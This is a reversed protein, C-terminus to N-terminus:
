QQKLQKRKNFFTQYALYAAIFTGIATTGVLMFTVMIQYKVAILPSTGALILGSMMGPLSVIGLTKASDIKPIMGTKIADKILEQSAVLPSAGLALKSNVEDKRLDYNQTLQKLTLSIAVMTNSTVMGGVPIVQSPVFAIAQSLVLISLTASVALAIAILTIKFINPIHSSRKSATQAANLIMFILLLTTIWAKNVDFFKDLIFGVLLLQVVARFMSVIIEKELDLDQKYSFILAIIVLTFTGILSTNSMSVNM